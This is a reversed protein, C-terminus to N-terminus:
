GKEEIKREVITEEEKQKFSPKFEVHEAIIIINSRLKGESDNWREQKIRGVVRVGRGQKLYEACTEALKGWSTINIYSTEEKRGTSEKYTRHSAISFKCVATGKPTYSFEPDHTLNGEILISNLNDM